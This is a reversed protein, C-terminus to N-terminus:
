VENKQWGRVKILSTNSVGPAGGAILINCPVVVREKTKLPPITTATSERDVM